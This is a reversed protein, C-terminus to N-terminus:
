KCIEPVEVKEGNPGPAAGPASSPPFSVNARDMTPWDWIWLLTFPKGVALDSPLAVDSQCWLNEGMPLEAAKAFTSVRSQSIAGNNIQYCQGDDFNRTALLRGKGDGGTGDPTWKYLIDLLNASPDLHTTGYIYVTGRNAPKNAQGEPISVHGNEQYQLAVLDGPAAVLMPLEDTYNATRQAPNAVKDDRHIVKGDPRGNPPILWGVAPDSYQPNERSVFGRPFGDKGVMTGNPAIRMLREINSHAHCNSALALIVTTLIGPSPMAPIKM